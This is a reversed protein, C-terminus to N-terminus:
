KEFLKWFCVVYMKGDKIEFDWINGRLLMPAFWFKKHYDPLLVRNFYIIHKKVFSYKKIVAVHLDTFIINWLRLVSKLCFSFHGTGSFRKFVFYLLVWNILKHWNQEVATSAAYDQVLSSFNLLKYPNGLFIAESLKAKDSFWTKEPQPNRQVRSMFVPGFICKKARLYILQCKSEKNNPCYNLIEVYLPVSLLVM